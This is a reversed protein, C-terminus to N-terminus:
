KALFKTGTATLLWILAGMNIIVTLWFVNRFERKSSKHRLLQQALAAGPWGGVLALIHLTGESIRWVKRQAKSKDFAYTLFTIVSLAVYFLMIKQPLYVLFSAIIIVALFSLSLSISFLNIKKPQKIKLKEGSFTAESACYRNDSDKTISFTIV